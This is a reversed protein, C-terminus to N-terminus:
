RFDDPSADEFLLEYEDSPDLSFTHTYQTGLIHTTESLWYSGNASFLEEEGYWWQGTCVAFRYWGEPLQLTVKQGPTIFASVYKSNVDGDNNHEHSLVLLYTPGAGDYIAFTVRTGSTDTTWSNIKGSKPMDEAAKEPFNSATTRIYEVQEATDFGSLMELYGAPNKGEALEDFNM